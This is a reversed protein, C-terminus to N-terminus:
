KRTPAECPNASTGEVVVCLDNTHHARFIDDWDTLIFVFSVPPEPQSVTSTWVFFGPREHFAGGHAVKSIIRKPSLMLRTKEGNAHVKDAMENEGMRRYMEEHDREERAVKDAFETPNARFEELSRLPDFDGVLTPSSYFVIKSQVIVNEADTQGINTFYFTLSSEKNPDISALTIQAAQAIQFQQTVLKNAAEQANASRLSAEAQTKSAEAQTNASTALNHMETLQESLKGVQQRYLCILQDTQRSSSQMESLQGSMVGLQQFAAFTYSALIGAALVELVYKGIPTQDPRCHETNSEHKPSPQIDSSLPPGVPPEQNPPISNSDPELTM